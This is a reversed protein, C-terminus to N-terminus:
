HSGAPIWEEKCILRAAEDPPYIAVGEMGALMNRCIERAEEGLGTDLLILQGSRVSSSWRMLHLEYRLQQELQGPERALPIVLYARSRSAGARPRGIACAIWGLAQVAGISALLCVFVWFIIYM